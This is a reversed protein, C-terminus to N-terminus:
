ISSRILSYKCNEARFLREIDDYVSQLIRKYVKKRGRPRTHYPADSFHRCKSYYILVGRAWLEHLSFVAIMIDRTDLKAGEANIRSRPGGVPPQCGVFIPCHKCILVRRTQKWDQNSLLQYYGTFSNTALLHHIRPKLFVVTLQEFSLVTIKAHSRVDRNRWSLYCRELCCTEGSIFYRQLVEDFFVFAFAGNVPTFVVGAIMPIALTHM